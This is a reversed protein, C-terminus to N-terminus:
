GETRLPLPFIQLESRAQGEGSQTKLSVNAVSALTCNLGWALADKVDPPFCGAEAWSYNQPGALKSLGHGAATSAEMM